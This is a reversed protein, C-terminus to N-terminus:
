SNFRKLVFGSLPHSYIFIVADFHKNIKRLENLSYDPGTGHWGRNVVDFKTKLLDYWGYYDWPNKNRGENTYDHAYSDGLILLKQM